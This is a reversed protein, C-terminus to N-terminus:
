FRRKYYDKVEPKIWFILLPISAIITCGTMGICIMVLHYIWTWQRRPLFLAVVYPILIAVGIGTYIIGMFQPPMGDLDEATVPFLGTMLAAGLGAVCIFMLCMVILYVKYWLIVGPTEPSATNSPPLPSHPPPASEM